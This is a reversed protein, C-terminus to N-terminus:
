SRRMCTQLVKKQHTIFTQNIQAVPTYIYIYIYIGTAWILWIYIYIYIGTAWILWIYICRYSLDIMYIYIYVQLEFWDYIYIYVQLEFWDYIYIYIYIYICLINQRNWHLFNYNNSQVYNNITVQLIRSLFHLHIQEQPETTSCQTLLAFTTPEIGLSCM